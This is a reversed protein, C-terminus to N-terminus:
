HVTLYPSRWARPSTGAVGLLLEESVRVEGCLTTQAMMVPSYTARTETCTGVPVSATLGRHTVSHASAPCMGLACLYRVTEPSWYGDIYNTTVYYTGRA